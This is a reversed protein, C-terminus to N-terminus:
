MSATERKTHKTHIYIHIYSHLTWSQNIATDRKAQNMSTDRAAPKYTHIDLANSSEYCHTSKRRNLASDKKRHM